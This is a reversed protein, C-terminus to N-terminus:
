QTSSSHAPRKTIRVALASGTSPLGAVLPGGEASERSIWRGSQVDLIEVMYRGSPFDIVMQGPANEKAQASPKIHLWTVSGEDHMRCHGVWEPLHRIMDCHTIKTMSKPRDIM